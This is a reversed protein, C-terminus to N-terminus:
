LLCSTSNLCVVVQLHSVIKYYDERFTAIDLPLLLWGFGADLHGEFNGSQALYFPSNLGAEARIRGSSCRSRCKSSHLLRASRAKTPLIRAQDLAIGDGRAM